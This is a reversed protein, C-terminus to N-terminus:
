LSNALSIIPLLMFRLCKTSLVPIEPNMFFESKFLFTAVNAVFASNFASCSLIM